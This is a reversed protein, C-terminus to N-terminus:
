ALTKHNTKKFGCQFNFIRIKKEAMAQRLRRATLPYKMEKIM